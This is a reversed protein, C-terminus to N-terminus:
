YGRGDKFLQFFFDSFLEASLETALQLLFAGRQLLFQVGDLPRLLHDQLHQPLFRRLGYVYAPFGYIYM